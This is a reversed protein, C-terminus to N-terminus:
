FFPFIVVFFSHFYIIMMGELKNKLSGMVFLQNLDAGGRGYKKLIVRDIDDEHLGRHSIFTHYDGFGPDQTLAVHVLNRSRIIGAQDKINAIGVSVGWPKGGKESMSGNVEQYAARNQNSLKCKVVLENDKDIFLDCVEGIENGPKVLGGPQLDRHNLSLKVKKKEQYFSRVMEKKAETNPWPGNYGQKEAEKLNPHLKSIMYM